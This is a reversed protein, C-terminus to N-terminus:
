RGEGDPHAPARRARSDSRAGQLRRSAGPVLRLEDLSPADRGSAPVVFAVGLEGIM